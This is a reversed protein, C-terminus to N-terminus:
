PLAHYIGMIDHYHKEPNHHERVYEYASSGMSKVDDPHALMWLMADRLGNVDGPSVLLGHEHNKVLETLGGLNSAIVPKSSAFAELVSYPQNEYCLSPAVVAISHHILKELNDQDQFGLYRVNAPLKNIFEFETIGDLAGAILLHIQPYGDLAKLLTRIGKIESVKGSYLFYGECGSNDYKGLPLFNTIHHVRDNVFGRSILKSKLFYSPCIFADVRDRIGMITHSYAEFSAMLSALASGKKCRKLVAWYYSNIGCSECLEGSTDILFHTNPCILKYDHLTWVVPIKRQNAEYIISPSIHAHINQLHVIDPKVRDLLTSFKRRAERSYIVRKAVRISSAINKDRNLTRFDIPSVFLDENPDPLNRQDQMAFFSVQQGKHRLLEALSFTYTSDGGGKFHCTNVLLIKSM